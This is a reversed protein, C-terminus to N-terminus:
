KTFRGIKHISRKSGLPNCLELEDYYLCIQLATSHAQFLMHEAFVRGDCYDRLIGITSQHGREVQIYTFQAVTDYMDLTCLLFLSPFFMYSKMAASTFASDRGTCYLYLAEQSFGM